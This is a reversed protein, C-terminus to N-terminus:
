YASAKGQAAYHWELFLRFAKGRHSCASKEEPALEAFTRGLETFLFFPDYGFGGSGRPVTLMEGRARGTFSHITNGDRAVAIVCVYEAPFPGHGIRTLEETLARNNEEDSSNIGSSNTHAQRGDRLMAAYRASYVGPAGNLAAVALGSDEALVLEGPAHLSYYEAKIRANYEFTVGDEAPAPISKLGPLSEIGMGMKRATGQFERLKGPNTTAILIDPSSPM